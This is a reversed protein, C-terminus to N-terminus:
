INLSPDVKIKRWDSKLVKKNNLYEVYASMAIMQANDTCLEFAPVQIDLDPTIMSSLRERLYKNASVGGAVILTKARHDRIARTTKELLHEIATQQFAAALNARQAPSQIRGNQILVRVATKLGSYSFNYDPRNHLPMPLEIANPNGELALKAVSPGGPYSLGLLKAVKDFSEGVADDLTDGIMQCDKMSKLLILETHGGSILLGIAPYRIDKVEGTELNFYNAHLHAKLHNIGLLPKNFTSAVTKAFETGVLLSGILGPGHTVAILDIDKIKVKSDKLLKEFLGNITEIHRRAAVEPVVGHTKQHIKIQSNLVNGRIKFKSGSVELIALGTEDCSSEIALIKLRPLTM